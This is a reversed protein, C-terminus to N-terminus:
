QAATENGQRPLDQFAQPTCTNQECSTGEHHLPTNTETNYKRETKIKLAKEKIM